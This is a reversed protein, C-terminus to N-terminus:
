RWIHRAAECKGSGAAVDCRRRDARRSAERPFVTLLVNYRGRTGLCRSRLPSVLFETIPQAERKYGKQLDTQKLAHQIHLASADYRGYKYDSHNSTANSHGNSPPPQQHTGSTNLVSKILMAENDINARGGARIQENIYTQSKPVNLATRIGVANGDIQGPNIKPVHSQCYVEKDVQSNQNNYYNKLTLKTGCVACKFCQSHFFTFDKLPGVRDVQYVTHRCRLCHTDYFNARQAFSM